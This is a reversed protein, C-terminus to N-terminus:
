YIEAATPSVSEGIKDEEDAKFEKCKLRLVYTTKDEIFGELSSKHGNISSNVLAGGNNPFKLYSTFNISDDGINDATFPPDSVLEL